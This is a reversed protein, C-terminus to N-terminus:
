TFKSSKVLNSTETGASYYFVSKVKSVYLLAGNAGLAINSIGKGWCTNKDYNSMVWRISFNLSVRMFSVFIKFIVILIYRQKSVSPEQTLSYIKLIFDLVINLELM